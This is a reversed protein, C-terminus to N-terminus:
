SKLKELYIEFENRPKIYYARLVSEAQEIGTVTVDLNPKSFLSKLFGASKLLQDTHIGFEEKGSYGIEVFDKDSRNAGIFLENKGEEDRHIRLFEIADEESLDGLEILTGENDSKYCNM